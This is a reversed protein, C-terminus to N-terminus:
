IHRWNDRCIVRYVCRKGVGFEEALDQVTCEGSAYLQRIDLVNDETLKSLYSTEGRPFHGKSVADAMNDAHTGLFLHYPNCCGPNDCHHCVLLGKPIPGFTLIWAVRHVYWSRNHISIRGYGRGKLAGQWEWCEDVEGVVVKSWFRKPEEFDAM